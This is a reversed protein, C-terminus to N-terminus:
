LSIQFTGNPFDIESLLTVPLATIKQNGGRTCCLNEEFNKLALLHGEKSKSKIIMNDVYVEVEKHILDHLITM